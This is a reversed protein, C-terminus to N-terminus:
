RTRSRVEAAALRRDDKRADPSWAIVAEIPAYALTVRGPAPAAAMAPSAAANAEWAALDSRYRDYARYFDTFPAELRALAPGAYASFQQAPISAAEAAVTAAIACFGDKAPPQAFFNYVQTMERDHADRWDGGGKRAEAETQAFATKLLTKKSALLANYNAILAAEGEGRCGLAAVNLASRVHWITAAPSIGSNLTRYSGDPGLPPITQNASAGAPPQPRAPAPPPAAPPALSVSAPRTACGALLAAVALAGARRRISIANRAM